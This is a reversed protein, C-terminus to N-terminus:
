KLNNTSKVIQFPEKSDKLQGIVELFERYRIAEVLETNASDLKDPFKKAQLAKELAAQEHITAKSGVVAMLTQFEPKNFWNRLDTEKSNELNETTFEIM